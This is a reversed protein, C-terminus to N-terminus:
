EGEFEDLIAQIDDNYLADNNDIIYDIIDEIYIEDQVTYMSKFNGYGDFMIYNDNPNFDGYFVRCAIWHWDQGHCVEDFADLDYIHDDFNNTENCYENWLYLM